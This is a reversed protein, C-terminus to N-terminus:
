NYFTITRTGITVSGNKATVLFSISGHATMNFSATPGDPWYGTINGSTKQWSITTSNPCSVRIFVGGTSVHNTTNLIQNYVGANDYTGELCINTTINLILQQTKAQGCASSVTIQLVSTGSHIPALTVSESTAGASISINQYGSVISWSYTVNQIGNVYFPVTNTGIITPNGVIPGIYSWFQLPFSTDVRNKLHYYSGTLNHAVIPGTCGYKSLYKITGGPLVEKVASHTDGDLIHYYSINAELENCVQVYKGSNQWDTDYKKGKTNPCTYPTLVPNNWGPKCNDEFYSMVFGHCNYTAAVDCNSLRKSGYQAENIMWFVDDNLHDCVITGCSMQAFLCKSLSLVIITLLLSKSVKSKMIMWELYKLKIPFLRM